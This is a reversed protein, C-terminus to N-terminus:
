LVPFPRCQESSYEWNGFLAQGPVPSLVCRCSSAPHSCPLSFLLLSLSQNKWEPASSPECSSSQGGWGLGPEKGEKLVSRAVRPWHGPGSISLSAKRAQACLCVDGPSESKLASCSTLGSDSIRRLSFRPYHTNM